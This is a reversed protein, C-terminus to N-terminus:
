KVKNLNYGKFKEHNKYLSAIEETTKEKQQDLIKVIETDLESVTEIWESLDSSWAKIIENCERKEEPKMGNVNISILDQLKQLISILRERNQMEAEVKAVDGAIAYDYIKVTSNITRDMFSTHTMITMMVKIM